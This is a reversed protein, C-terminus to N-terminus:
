VFIDTQQKKEIKRARNRERAGGMWGCGHLKTPEESASVGSVAWRSGRRHVLDHGALGAEQRWALGARGALGSSGSRWQAQRLRDRVVRAPRVRVTIGRRAHQEHSNWFHDRRVYEPQAPGM